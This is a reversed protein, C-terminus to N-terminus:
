KVGDDFLWLEAGGAVQDLEEDSLIVGAEEVSKTESFLVKRLREKHDSGATFDAKEFINEM